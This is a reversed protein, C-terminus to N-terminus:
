RFGFGMTIGETPGTSIPVLPMPKLIGLKKVTSRRRHYKEQMSAHIYAWGQVNLDNFGNGKRRYEGQTYAGSLRDM